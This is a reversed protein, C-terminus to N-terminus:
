ILRLEHFMYVIFQINKGKLNIRGEVKGIEIFSMVVM